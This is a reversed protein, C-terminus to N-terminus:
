LSKLLEGLSQDWDEAEIRKRYNKYDIEKIKQGSKIEELTVGSKVEMVPITPDPTPRLPQAKQYLSRLKNLDSTDMIAAILQYRLLQIENM